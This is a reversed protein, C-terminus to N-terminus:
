DDDDTIYGASSNSHSRSAESDGDNAEDYLNSHISSEKASVHDNDGTIFSAMKNPTHLRSILRWNTKSDQSQCHQRLKELEMRTFVRSEDLYENMTLLRRPEPGFIFTRIKRWIRRGFIRFKNSFRRWFLFSILLVIITTGIRRDQVSFYILAMALMQLTWEVLNLSRPDVPPGLRYCVALSLLTVSCLYIAVYFQYDRFIVGVNRWTLYYIYASLPWGGLFFPLRTSRPILRQLFFGLALFSLFIGVLVGGLYFVPVSRVLSRANLFLLTSIVCIFGGLNSIQEGILEM